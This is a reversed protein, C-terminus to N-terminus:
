FYVTTFDEEFVVDSKQIQKGTFEEKIFQLVQKDHINVSSINLQAEYEDVNFDRIADIDTLDEKAEGEKEDPLISLIDM